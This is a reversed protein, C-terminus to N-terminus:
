VKAPNNLGHTDLFTYIDGLVREFANCFDSMSQLADPENRDIGLSNWFTDKYPVLKLLVTFTGTTVWGHYQQLTEYYTATVIESLSVNCVNEGTRATHYDQMLNELLGVVFTMARCVLM